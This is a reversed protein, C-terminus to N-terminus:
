NLVFSILVTGNIKNVIIFILKNKDDRQNLVKMKRKNSKKNEFPNKCMDKAKLKNDM